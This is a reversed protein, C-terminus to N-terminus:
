GGEDVDHVDAMSVALEQRMGGGPGTKDWRWKLGGGLRGGNNQKQVESNQTNTTTRGKNQM